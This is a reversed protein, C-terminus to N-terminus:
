FIYVFFIYVVCYFIYTDLEQNKKAAYEISPNQFPPVSTSIQRNQPRVFLGRRVWRNLEFINAICTVLAQTLIEALDICRNNFRYQEGVLVKNAAWGNFLDFRYNVSQLICM